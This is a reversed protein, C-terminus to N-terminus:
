MLEIKGATGQVATMAGSLSAQMGGELALEMDAAVSANQGKLTADTSAELIAAGGSSALNLDQDATANITEGATINLAANASIEIEEAQLVIKGTSLLRLEQAHSALIMSNNGEKDYIRIEEEGDTDVLEITHGSRTRIAKIDNAAPDHGTVAQGNFLAGAVYPKDVNGGEFAVLVEEGIEPIFHFGKETGAHPSLIRMWDSEMEWVFMVKVRGLGDPDENDIVEAPQSSAQATIFPNTYPPVKASAPIATFQCNYNEQNVSNHQVSTIIYDSSVGANDITIVWGLQLPERSQGSVTMLTSENLDLLLQNAYDLEAQDQATPLYAHTRNSRSFIENSKQAATQSYLNDSPQQGENTALNLKEAEKFNYASVALKPSNLQVSTRMNQLNHGNTLTVGPTEIKGFRLNVGNYYMWHGYRAAMRSLFQFDTENYQVGYLIQENKAEEFSEPDYLNSPADALAQNIVDQLPMDLFTQNQQVDDILLTPSSGSILFSTTAQDKSHIQIATILGIFYVEREASYLTITVKSGLQEKVFNAQDDPSLLMEESYQWLFSFHQHTCLEQGIALNAFVIPSDHGDVTISVHEELLTTNENDSTAM